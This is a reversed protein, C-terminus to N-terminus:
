GRASKLVISIRGPAPRRVEVSYASRILTLLGELDASRLRGSFRYDALRPDLEISVAHYRAFENIVESLPADRFVLSGKRWALLDDLPRSRTPPAEGAQDWSLRDGAVLLRSTDGDHPTFEVEGELVAVDLRRAQERVWFATGIDRLTGQSVLVKFPRPDGHAVNFVAEGESLRVCRCDLRFDIEIRSDTNLEIRSGDALSVAGHEGRVTQKTQVSTFSGPLLLAVGLGMVAISALVLGAVRNRRHIPPASRAHLVSLEAAAFPRLGGLAQWLSEARQWAAQHSPDATLWAAHAAADDASWRGSHLRALWDLAAQEVPDDPTPAAMIDIDSKDDQLRSAGGPAKM